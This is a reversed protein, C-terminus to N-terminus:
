RGDQESRGRGDDAAPVARFVLFRSALYNVGFSVGAALGLISIGAGPGSMVGELAAVAALRAALTLGLAGAYRMARAASLRRAGARFTWVEHLLYNFAAGAAFGAAASVTLALGAGEALTWALGLDVCLGAVAVGTFRVLEALRGSM